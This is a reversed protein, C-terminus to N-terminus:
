KRKDTGISLLEFSQLHDDRPARSATNRSLSSSGSELGASHHIRQVNSSRGTSSSVLRSTRSFQQESREGSSLRSSSIIAKKSLSGNRSDQADKSSTPADEHIRHKSNDGHHGSGSSNRRAFVEVAGSFRDRIEEGVPLKKM